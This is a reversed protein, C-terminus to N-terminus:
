ELLGAVPAAANQRRANALSAKFKGWAAHLREQDPFTMVGMRKNTAPGTADKDKWHGTLTIFVHWGLFPPQPLSDLAEKTYPLAPPTWLNKAAARFQAKISGNDILTSVEVGEPTLVTIRYIGTTKAKSAKGDAEVPKVGPLADLEIVEIGTITGALVPVSEFDHFEATAATGGEAAASALALMHIQNLEDDQFM